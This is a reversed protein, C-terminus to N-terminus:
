DVQYWHDLEVTSKSCIQSGLDLLTISHPPQVLTCTIVILIFPYPFPWFPLADNLPILIPNSAFFDSLVCLTDRDSGYM